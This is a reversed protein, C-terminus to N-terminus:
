LDAEGYYSPTIFQIRENKFYKEFLKKVKENNTNKDSYRDMFQDYHDNSGDFGDFGAIWIKKYNVNRLFNLLCLTSDESTTDGVSRLRAFDLVYKYQIDEDALNSTIITREAGIMDESGYIVRKLNTFFAYDVSVEKPVFNISITICNEEKIRKRIKEFNQQISKGPAILCINQSDLIQRLQEDSRSDDVSVGLYDDYLQQIYKENYIVKENQDISSLIRRIDKTRLRGKNMLFEPYTRHLNYTASLAYPVAYGWPHQEKIKVVFDDIADYIYDIDYSANMNKNLYDMVLEQCLNGPVRGIGLISSDVYVDRKGNFYTMFELALSFALGLNEHLHASIGIDQILDNDLLADIRKLDSLGMAGFTDVITFVQPHVSNIKEILQLLEADSYGMINIPNCHCEYGKDMVIKCLEMGDQIRTKHFSVRIIDIDGKNEEIKDWDWKDVQTMLSTKQGPKIEPPINIRAEEINNYLTRNKDFTVNKLYGLEIVDIGSRQINGLIGHIVREGFNWDNVNGGDRVSSDMLRISM